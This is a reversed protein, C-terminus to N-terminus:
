PKMIHGKKSNRGHEILIWPAMLMAKERPMGCTALCAVGEPSQYQRNRKNLIYDVLMTVHCVGNEEFRKGSLSIRIVKNLIVGVGM